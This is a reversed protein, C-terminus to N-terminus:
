NKKGLEYQGFLNEFKGKDINASMDDMAISLRLSVKLQLM